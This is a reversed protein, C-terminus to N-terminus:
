SELCSLSSARPESAVLQAELSRAMFRYGPDNALNGTECPDAQYDYLERLLIRGELDRYLTYRYRETRMSAAEHYERFRDHFMPRRWGWVLPKGLDSEQRVISALSRGELWEPRPLGALDCLTPFLDVHETLGAFCRSASGPNVILLPTRFSHERLCHKGWYNHQGYNFGHDSTVVIITDGARGSQELAEVVRGIQADWYSVSAYYAHLLDLTDESDPEWVVSYEGTSYYRTPERDGYAWEPVGTPPTQHRPPKLRERDYLDWYRRPSNWPLHGTAYGVGAFFPEHSPLQHLFEVVAGTVMGTAYAHDPVDASEFAPGRWRAQGQDPDVGAGLLEDLREKMLRRSEEAVWQHHVM